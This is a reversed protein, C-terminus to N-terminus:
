SAESGITCLYVCTLLSVAGHCSILDEILVPFMHKCFSKYRRKISAISKLTSKKCTFIGYKYCSIWVLPVLRLGFISESWDSSTGMKPSLCLGTVIGICCLMDTIGVRLLLHLTGVQLVCSLFWGKQQSFVRLNIRDKFELFIVCVWEMLRQNGPVLKERVAWVFFMTIKKGFCRSTQLTGCGSRSWPLAMSGEISSPKQPTTFIYTEFCM